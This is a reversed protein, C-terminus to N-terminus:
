RLDSVPLCALIYWVIQFGFKTALFIKDRNGTRKFWKGILDESDGYVDSSDWFTEGLELARDLVEFREEDPRIAGYFLSLGQLYPDACAAEWSSLISPQLSQVMLGFGM